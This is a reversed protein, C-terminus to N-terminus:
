KNTLQPQFLKFIRKIIMLLTLIIKSFYYYLFISIPYHILDNYSLGFKMKKNLPCIEPIFNATILLLLGLAVLCLIITYSLNYFTEEILKSKISIKKKGDLGINTNDNNDEKDSVSLLIILLNLFLGIFISLIVALINIIDKSPVRILLTLLLSLVWPLIYFFMFDKSRIKSNKNKPDIRLTNKHHSFIEGINIKSKDNNSM